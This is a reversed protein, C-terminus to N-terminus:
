VIGIFIHKIIQRVDQTLAFIPYISLVILSMELTLYWHGVVPLEVYEKNETLWSQIIIHM